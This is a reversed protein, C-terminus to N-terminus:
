ETVEMLQRLRQLGRHVHNTVAAESIDLVDAVERYTFGHSRTLVVAARQEPRLRGLARFLDVMEDAEVSHIDAVAFPFPQKRRAWRVHPRAHSQGARFLFGAANEMSAIEPWREWAVRIAEAFAESGIEVGYYAVLARRVSAGTSRVLEDFGRVASREPGSITM